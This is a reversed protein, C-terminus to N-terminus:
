TRSSPVLPGCEPENPDRSALPYEITPATSDDPATAGVTSTVVERQRHSACGIHMAREIGREVAAILYPRLRAAPIINQLSGVDRARRISHIRDFHEAVEGQKESYVQRYLEDYRASISPKDAETARSLEAQLERIRPDHLTRTKVEGPFVVAAAPAGGIVSAYSGDLAAAELQQNLSRSFVVYAGGHYRSIVCFVIPGDFNVVARAIEAGYELQLGRMSEPSGDFGSLNALVVVPRNHSAANIARAVKRSSQPFLTGGTWVEPGDAPVLGLRPLPRSEVGVLCVPIGGLHADWTVATEADRMLLWRELPEHDQDVVARMVSRIDFPKKRGLNKDASFVDGVSYFETGEVASHPETCVDRDTPDNTEARRPFREGRAVYAHEYHRLLIRCAGAIDNAYYQAQGNPGMIRDFGGIGQNTDASVGGSYDLARKGTLVMSGQPTMVLIGKTHMLMTAEANWYSQAGVNVGAVIVNIEGGGQTFEIVRRVVRAVADLGETGVDMAIKAGSSLPYWDVPVGLQQALDLAANIRVCEPESLAGMERTGDGLIMVRAMGEPHKATYNKIVGVVVNASNLGPARRVPSLSSRDDLDYETFDGRPFAAQEEEGPPTLMRIIEYAYVLGLRRMQVVKQAYATLPRIPETTISDFRLRLGTGTRNSIHLVRDVLEGTADERMRMRLVTKELGLNHSAPVLRRSIRMIEDSTLETISWLFLVVRNWHLRDREGRRARFERIAAIAELYLHELHPLGVVTGSPDMLPTTDNVDVLAILREDGPNDRAVARFLYIHEPAALQETRFNALRWVELREAVMPHMAPHVDHERYLGDTTHVFTFSHIPREPGPGALAVSVSTLSQPFRAQELAQMITRRAEATGPCVGDSVAYLDLSVAVSDAYRHLIPRVALLARGLDSYAAHTAVAHTLLGQHAYDATVVCHGQSEVHTIQGLRRVRHFRRFMAELSFRRLAVDPEACFSILLGQLAHACEVVTDMLYACEDDQGHKVWHKLAHIVQGYAEARAAELLPRDFFHHRAQRALDNVPLYRDQTAIIVRDLLDRFAPTVNAALAGAHGVRFELLAFVHAACDDRRRNAKCAFLLADELQPTPALGSVGYHGIVRELRDAIDEPLGQGGLHVSRLYSLWSEEASLRQDFARGPEDDCFAALGAFIGLLENESQWADQDDLAIEDRASRWSERLRRSESDDIDYGLMLRRLEDLLTRYCPRGAALEAGLSARAVPPAQDNEAAPELVMLPEGAAVQSNPRVKIQVVSGACPSVVATEMKMAELVLLTDGGNVRDGLRVRIALVVAPAPARVIGGEDRAIRHPIGDVEIGHRMGDVVSIVHHRVGHCTLWCEFDGQRDVQADVQAGDLSV